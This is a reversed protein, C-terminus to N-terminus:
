LQLPLIQLFDSFRITPQLNRLGKQRRAGVRTAMNSKCTSPAWIFIETIQITINCKLM